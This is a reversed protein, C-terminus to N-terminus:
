DVWGQGSVWDIDMQASSNLPASSGDLASENQLVWIMPGDPVGRSSAGILKGDLWYRVVSPAWEITSVHWASWLAGSTFADKPDHGKPHTFASITGQWEGEPFDIECGPCSGDIPWLLHASKYGVSRSSVRFRETFTGYRVGVLPKPVLASSHIPGSSGRWLRIHLQGGDVWTTHEPDYFGGVPYGRQTATDPWGTPYAWWQSQYRGDLGGCYARPQDVAHNCSSWSGLPSASDFQDSFTVARPGAEAPLAGFTAVAVAASVMACLRRAQTIM